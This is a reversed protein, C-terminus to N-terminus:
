PRQRDVPKHRPRKAQAEGVQGCVGFAGDRAEMLTAATRQLGELGSPADGVNTPAARTEGVDHSVAARCRLRFVQPRIARVISLEATNVVLSVHFVQREFTHWGVDQDSILEVASREWGLM